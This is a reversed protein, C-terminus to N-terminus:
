ALKKEATAGLAQELEDYDVPKTLHVDFGAESSRRRDSEAGWGTLAVIKLDASAPTRRLRRCVEYGDMEPMGIDLVVADLGTAAALELAKVGDYAVYVSHGSLRLAMALTDAADQNDDIVLLRLTKKANTARLPVVSDSGTTTRAGPLRLVFTTGRGLGDSRAEISGGHLNMLARALSLGIGLGGPHAGQKEDKVQTFADFVEELRDPPIGIGRDAVLIEVDDGDARWSVSSTARPPSFKIANNLVNTLVQTLRAPDANVAVPETPAAITIEQDAAQLLPEVAEVALSVVTGLEVHQPQLLLRGSVIRSVDLLDDLLRAVHAIQREMM